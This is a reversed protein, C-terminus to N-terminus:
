GGYTIAAAAATTPSGPLRPTTMPPDPLPSAMAAFLTVPTRAARTQFISVARSARSCLSAFTALIPARICVTASATPRM